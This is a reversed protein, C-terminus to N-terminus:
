QIDKWHLAVHKPLKSLAIKGILQGYDRADIGKNPRLVTLNHNGLIEGPEIDRSPYVARRFSTVHGADIEIPLPMKDESGLFNLNREIDKVLQHVDVSTLSVSHDRFTRGEKIDTFHFELMEAGLLTAAVLAQAGITHDSYGVSTNLKNKFTKMVNLHVDTDTIPYMSTCQMLTLYGKEKYISNVGQIYRVSEEVEKFTALGTSLIIPKGGEAFRKLFPYATLDGSGVKYCDVYPDIWNIMDFDWVSCLYKKGSDIIQHILSEHQAKTLEFKKFHQNRNADEVSSVLTDGTYLQLKIYDAPTQLALSVLKQAYEFNGEHNGGIEAILKPISNAM